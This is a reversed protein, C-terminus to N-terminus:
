RGAGARARQAAPKRAAIVPRPQFASLQLWDYTPLGLYRDLLSPLLGSPVASECNWLMVVGFDHDPLLAIMARYGQVAGAHFVLRQGAYDYIRWGLGYQAQAVRARRWPSGREEGPTVVQPSQIESLLDTPLVDPRHGLQANAWLAMDGISANVGAAPTVRYYNEKPRLAVWHRGQRIHPRAWDASSELADRGYTAHEMGLPHFVRREVEYSFFQGTAAFTADGILSFAINQYAYCDGVSCMLPLERLRYVLIPYPEDRELERDFANHPLGVRHSLLDRITLRQTERAQSLEVVPVLDQVANEWDLYGDRVLLATTTSAFAKSLSALRFPSDTRVPVGSGIDTTGLGRLSLVQGKGVVAVGLGVVQGTSMVQDTLQEFEGVIRKLEIPDDGLVRPVVLAATNADAPTASPANGSVADVAVPPAALACSTALGLIVTAAARLYPPPTPCWLPLM